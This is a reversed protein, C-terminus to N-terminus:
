GARGCRPGPREPRSLGFCRRLHAAVDEQARRAADVTGSMTFFGHAMGDYRRLTVPVGATELAKAYQEGQDRLPDYEATVVLAPPLGTHDDALLPSALPHYGDKEEALYHGWYWDVSTANFLWPDTNERISATQSRYETNPYVLAQGVLAPGGRDRALLTLAASLNGGASDGAVAIRYPDVGLEDAHGAVWALGAYADEVAAPFRHEPALRYGVTVVACPTTNALQRCVEDSTDVSGLTWGGGFLYVLVPLPTDSAPRDVRVPLDGGPGPITRDTVEHVPQPDGGGARTSALDEARAEEVSMTYLPRAGAQERAARAAAFQPDLPM